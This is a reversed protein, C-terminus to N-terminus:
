QDVEIEALDPGVEEEEIQNESDIFKPISTLIIDKKLEEREIDLMMTEYREAIYKQFSLPKIWFNDSILDTKLEAAKREVLDIAEILCLWRAYEEKKLSFTKEKGQLNIIEQNM